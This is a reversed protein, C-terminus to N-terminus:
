DNIINGLCLIFYQQEMKAGWNIRGYGVSLGKCEIYFQDRDKQYGNSFCIIIDTPHYLSGKIKIRTIRLRKIWYPSCERYEEKKEGSLIMDFWKKKLNLHLIPKSM